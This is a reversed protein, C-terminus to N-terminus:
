PSAVSTQTVYKVWDAGTYIAALAYKQENPNSKSFMFGGEGVQLAAKIQLQSSFGAGAASQNWRILIAWQEPVPSAPLNISKTGPAGGGAAVTAVDDPDGGFALAVNEASADMTAFEVQFERHNVGAKVPAVSGLAFMKAVDVTGGCTIGDESIETALAITEWNGAPATDVDPFAEGVPAFYVDAPAYQKAYLSTNGAM